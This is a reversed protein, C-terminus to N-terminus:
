VNWMMYVEKTSRLTGYHQFNMNVCEVVKEGLSVQPSGTLMKHEHMDWWRYIWFKVFKFRFIVGPSKYFASFNVFKYFYVEWPKKVNEKRWKCGQAVFCLISFYRNLLLKYIKHGNIVEKNNIVSICGYSANIDALLRSFFVYKTM